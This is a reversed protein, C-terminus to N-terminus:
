SHSTNTVKMSDGMKTVRVQIVKLTPISKRFPFQMWSVILQMRYEPVILSKMDISLIILAQVSAPIQDTYCSKVAEASNRNEAPFSIVM